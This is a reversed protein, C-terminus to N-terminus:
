VKSFCAFTSNEINLNTCVSPRGFPLVSLPLVIHWRDISVPAHFYLCLDCVKSLFLTWYALVFTVPKTRDYALTLFVDYNCKITTYCVVKICYKHRHMLQRYYRRLIVFRVVSLTKRKLDECRWLMFVPKGEFQDKVINGLSLCTFCSM